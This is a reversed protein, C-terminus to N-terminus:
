NSDKRLPDINKAFGNEGARRVVFKRDLWDLLDVINSSNEIMDVREKKTLMKATMEGVHHVTLQYPLPGLNMNHYLFREVAAWPTKSYGAFLAPNDMLGRAAM